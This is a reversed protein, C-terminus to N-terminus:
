MIYSEYHCPIFSYSEGCWYGEPLGCHECYLPQHETIFINVLFTQFNNLHTMVGLHLALLLKEAVQDWERIRFKELYEESSGPFPFGAVHWFATETHQHSYMYCAGVQPPVQVFGSHMVVPVPTASSITTSTTSM